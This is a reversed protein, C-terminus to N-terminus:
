ELGGSCSSCLNNSTFFWSLSSAPFACHPHDWRAVIGGVRGMLLLVAAGVAGQKPLWCKLYFFVPCEAPQGLQSPIGRCYPCPAETNWLSLEIMYWSNSNHICLNKLFFITFGKSACCLTGQTFWNTGTDKQCHVAVWLYILHDTNRKEFLLVLLSWIIGISPSNLDSLCKMTFCIILSSSTSTARTHLLFLSQVCLFIFLKDKFYFMLSYLIWKDVHILSLILIFVGVKKDFIRWPFAECFLVRRWICTCQWVVGVSKEKKRNGWLM